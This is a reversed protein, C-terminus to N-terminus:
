SIIWPGLAWFWADSFGRFRSHFSGGALVPLRVALTPWRDAAVTWFALPSGAASRHQSIFRKTIAARACYFELTGHSAEGLLVIRADAFRDFMAGFAPDDIDPLPEGADHIMAALPKPEVLADTGRDEAWGHAGILPVFRASGLDEEDFDAESRRTVRVLRQQDASGVPSSWGGESRWNSASHGRSTRDAPTSWSRM